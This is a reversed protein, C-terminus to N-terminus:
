LDVGKEKRRYDSRPLLIKLGSRPPIEDQTKSEGTPSHGGVGDDVTLIRENRFTCKIIRGSRSLGISHSRGPFPSHDASDTERHRLYEDFEARTMSDAFTDRRSTRCQLPMPCSVHSGFLKRGHLGELANVKKFCFSTGRRWVSSLIDLKAFVAPKIGHSM